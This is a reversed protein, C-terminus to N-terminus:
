DSCKFLWSSHFQAGNRDIVEIRVGNQHDPLPIEEYDLMEYTRLFKGTQDIISIKLPFEWSVNKPIQIKGQHPNPYFHTIENSKTRTTNLPIKAKSFKLIAAISGKAIEKLANTDMASIYDRDTHYEPYNSYQYLGTIRYGLDEFPMYDSSYARDLIPEITSYDSMWRALSDTMQKSGANNSDPFADQDYECKIKYNDSAGKTGGLQDLNFVLILNSDNSGIVQNAYHTSGILGNEEGSFHIFRIGYETELGALLRAMELIVSVGSGNDNAGPGNRTDYHGCVIMYNDTLGKKIAVVNQLNYANYSFSDLLTQYGLSQYYSYLWDRTSDLEISGAEKVGLQEFKILHKTLETASGAIRNIETNTIQAGSCLRLFFLGIFIFYKNM